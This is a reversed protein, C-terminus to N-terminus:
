NNPLGYGNTVKDKSQDIVTVPMPHFYRPAMNERGVVGDLIAGNFMAVANPDNWINIGWRVKSYGAAEL